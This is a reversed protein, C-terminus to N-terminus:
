MVVEVTHRGPTAPIVQGEIPKGDMTIQRVGKNRGNPNSVHIDYEAGRFVRHVRYDRAESPLCPDIRLGEYDPKVGLLFESVTYWM